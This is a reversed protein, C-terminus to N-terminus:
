EKEHNSWGKQIVKHAFRPIFIVADLFVHVVEISAIYSIYGSIPLTSGNFCTSWVQDLIDAIFDFRWSTNIFAIFDPASGIRFWMIFYLLIPLLWIVAWLIMDLKREFKSM